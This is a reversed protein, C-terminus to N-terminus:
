LEILFTPISNGKNLKPRLLELAKELQLDSEIDDGQEITFDPELGSNNISHGLPTIWEAVTVKLVSGDKMTDLEQVSGKGFTKEGVLFAGLHDRLAGAVIESASASGGNILVVIPLRKLASSGRSRLNTIEGSRNKQKVVVDGKNIFWGSIDVAVDLFGGPNNRMDIVVGKAGKLLADFVASSFESSVSSNFSSIQFYAVTEKGGITDSIMKWEFSPVTVIGREIIIKRAEEWGNRMVLLVVSTGPEGRIIKVAEIITLNNTFEDDVKLIKDGSILGAKEAPNGKLPAIVLLQGDRIGIEAGIGGFVGNVDEKFKKADSPQLFVTYPDDLSGVAGKIAGYLLEDDSVEDVRVYKEKVADIADWFLSFDADLTINEVGDELLIEGDGEYFGLPLSPNHVAGYYYGAYFVGICFIFLLLFRVGKGRYRDM